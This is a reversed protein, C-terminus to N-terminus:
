PRSPGGSTGPHKCVWRLVPIRLFDDLALEEAQVGEDAAREALEPETYGLERAPDFDLRRLLDTLAASRGSAPDGTRPLGPRDPLRSFV